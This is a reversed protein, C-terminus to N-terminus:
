RCRECCSSICELCRYCFALFVVWCCALCRVQSFTLQRLSHPDAEILMKAIEHDSKHPDIAIILQRFEDESLIGNKDADFQRFLKTLKNLFRDHRRLQYDLLVQLFDTYLIRNTPPPTDEPLRRPDDAQLVACVCVIDAINM